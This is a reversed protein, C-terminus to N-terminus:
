KEQISRFALFCCCCFFSLDPYEVFLLGNRHMVHTFVSKRYLATYYISQAKSAMRDENWSSMETITACFCGYVICSVQNMFVPLLSSKAWLSYNTWEQYLFSNLFSEKYFSCFCLNPWYAYNALGQVLINM